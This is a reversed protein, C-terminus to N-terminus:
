ERVLKDLDTGQELASKRLSALILDGILPQLKNGMVLFDITEDSPHGDHLTESRVSYCMQFFKEAPLGDYQHDGLLAKIMRRASQGISEERLREIGTLLSARSPNDLPLAEAAAYADDVLAQVSADRKKPILLAEVATVLTIFRSRFVGDFFSSCYLEMALRQHESPQWEQSVASGIAEVFASVNKAVAAEVNLRVFAPSPNVDEYIDIGQVDVRAPRGIKAELFERGKATLAQRVHGDGTDVGIGHTTAWLLLSDRALAAAARAEGETCFPGSVVAGSSHASIPTGVGASWLRVQQGGALTALLLDQEDSKLHDGRPMDFRVRYNYGPM